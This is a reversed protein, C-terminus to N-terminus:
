ENSARRATLKKPSILVLQTKSGEKASQTHQIPIPARCNGQKFKNSYQGLLLRPTGPVPHPPWAHHRPRSHQLADPRVLMTSLEIRLQMSNGLPHRSRSLRVYVIRIPTRHQSIENINWSSIPEAQTLLSTVTPRGPRRLACAAAPCVSRRSVPM